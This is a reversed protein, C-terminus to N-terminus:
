RQPRGDVYLRYGAAKMSRLIERPYTLGPDDWAMYVKGNKRISFKHQREYFPTQQQPM